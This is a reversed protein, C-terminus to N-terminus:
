REKTGTVIVRGPRPENPFMRELGLALRCYYNVYGRQNMFEVHEPANVAKAATTTLELEIRNRGSKLFKEIDFRYPAWVAFGASEGNVRLSYMGRKADPLELLADNEHADFETTWVMRGCFAAVDDVTGEAAVAAIGDEGTTFREVAVPSGIEIERRETKEATATKEADALRNEALLVVCGAFPLEMELRGNEDPVAHRYGGTAPDYWQLPGEPAQFAFGITDCGANALILRTGNPSKLRRTRLEPCPAALRIDPEGVSGEGTTFMFTTQNRLMEAAKDMPDEFPEGRQMKEVPYPVKAGIAPTTERFIASMRDVYSSYEGFFRWRPDPEFLNSSTGVYRGQRSSCYLAMVAVLEVGQVAQMNVIYKMEALSMDPGSVAFSESFHVAAPVTAPVASFPIEKALPHLQRVVEDCAPIDFHRLLRFLDGGAFELISATDEDGNFHGILILGNDTCWRHIPRMYSDEALQLWIDCFDERAQPDQKSFIRRYAEELPYGKSKEFLEPMAPTWPLEKEPSFHGFYPEDTFIGPIVTGFKDGFRRRYEEHTFEIFLRTTEPDLLDAREAREGIKGDPGVFRAVLDPRAALVKGNAHGSPWGGEDYLWATMGLKGAEDIATGIMNFWTESLYGDLGGPFSKPRYESPMAHMFFGDVGKDRMMRIQRRIEAEDVRENLFWFVLSSRGLLNRSDFM